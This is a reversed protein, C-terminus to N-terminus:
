EIDNEKEDQLQKIALCHAHIQESLEESTKDKLMFSIVREHKTWKRSYYKLGWKYPNDINSSWAYIDKYAIKKNKSWNFKIFLYSDCIELQANQKIFPKETDAILQADFITRRVQLYEAM